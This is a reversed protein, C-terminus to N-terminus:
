SELITHTACLNHCKEPTPRFSPRLQLQVLTISAPGLNEKSFFCILCCPRCWWIMICYNFGDSCRDQSSAFADYKWSDHMHIGILVLRKELHADHAKKGHSTQTWLKSPWFSHMGKFHVVPECNGLFHYKSDEQSVQLHLKGADDRLFNHLEFAFIWIFFFCVQFFVTSHAFGSYRQLIYSVWM